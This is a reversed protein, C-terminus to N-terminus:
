IRKDIIYVYEFQPTVIISVYEFQPTVIISVNDLQVAFHSKM